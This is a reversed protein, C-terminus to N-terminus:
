VNKEWLFHKLFVLIVSNRLVGYKGKMGYTGMHLVNCKRWLFSKDDNHEYNTAQYAKLIKCSKLPAFGVYM